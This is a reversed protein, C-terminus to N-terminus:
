AQDFRRIASKSDSKEIFEWGRKIAKQAAKGRSGAAAIASKIFEQDLKLLKLPKPKEGCM